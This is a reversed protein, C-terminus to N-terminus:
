LQLLHLSNLQCIVVSKFIQSITLLKARKVRVLNIWKYFLLLVFFDMKYSFNAKENIKTRIQNEHFYSTKLKLKKKDNFM